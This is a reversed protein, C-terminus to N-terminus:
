KGAGKKAALAKTKLSNVKDSKRGQAFKIKDYLRRDKKPMMMRAREEEVEAKSRKKASSAAAKSAAAGGGGTAEAEGGGREQALEKQFQEELGAKVGEEAGEEDEEEEEEESAQAVQKGAAPIQDAFARGHGKSQVQLERIVQVQDPVYGEEEDNVFPSVHPPPAVGPGYPEVPMLVCANVSDALWQPQVYERSLFIHRQTNRDVIQHTISQDAETFPSGVGEWGVQAGFAKAMVELLHRPVERSLFIKLGALVAGEAGGKDDEGEDEDDSGGMEAALDKEVGDLGADPGAPADQREIKSMKKKLAKVAKRQAATDQVEGEGVPGPAQTAPAAVVKSAAGTKKEVRFANIGANAAHAVEDIKPPYKLGLSGYLKYNIFHLQTEYFELFTMMVRYDVDTPLDQVFEYPVLWIVDQGQISAQFYCGKISFFVKRLSRSMVVYNFFENVLRRCNLTRKSEITQTSPLNAFLTAMSLADDMDRVADVFTPFREKVLRDLLYFPKHKELLEVKFNDKKSKAKVMKNKHARIERLKELVPEHMIFLIDKLAYYTKDKGKVKKKPDRPYVGKLICLRRFDALSLQLKKLAQARTIYNVADGAKGKQKAKRAM